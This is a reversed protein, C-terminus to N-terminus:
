VTLSHGKGLEARDTLHRVLEPLWEVADLVDNSATANLGAAPHANQANEVEGGDVPDTCRQLAVSAVRVSLGCGSAGSETQGSGCVARRSRVTWHVSGRRQLHRRKRRTPRDASGDFALPGHSLERGTKWTVGHAVNVQVLNQGRVCVDVGRDSSDVSLVPAPCTM